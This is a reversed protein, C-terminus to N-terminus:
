KNREFIEETVFNSRGSNDMFVTFITAQIQNDNLKKLTVTDILANKGYKDHAFRWVALGYIMNKDLVSKSLTTLPTKGWACNKPKCTGWANISLSGNANESIMLKPVKPIADHNIWTGVFANHDIAQANIVTAASLGACLAAIRKKM